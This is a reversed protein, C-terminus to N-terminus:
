KINEEIRMDSSIPKYDRYIPRHYMAKVQIFFYNDLLGAINGTIVAIYRNEDGLDFSRLTVLQYRIRPSFM